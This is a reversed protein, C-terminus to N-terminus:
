DKSEIKHEVWSGKLNKANCDFSIRFEKSEFIIKRDRYDYISGSTRRWQSIVKENKKNTLSSLDQWMPHCFPWTILTTWICIWFYPFAVATLLILTTWKLVKKNLKLSQSLLYIFLAILLFMIIFTAITDTVPNLFEFPMGIYLVAVLITLGFLIILLHKNM